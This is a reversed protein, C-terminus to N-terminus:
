PARSDLRDCFSRLVSGDPVVRACPEPHPARSAVVGLWAREAEVFSTGTAEQLGIGDRLDRVASTGYAGAVWRLFSGGQLLARIADPMDRERHPLETSWAGALPLLTGNQRLWAVWADSSQGLLPQARDIEEVVYVAFGGELFLRIGGMSLTGERLAVLMFPATTLDMGKGDYFLNLRAGDTFAPGAGNAILVPIRHDPEGGLFAEIAVYDAELRAVAQRVLADDASSSNRVALYASEVPVAGAGRASQALRLVAPLIEPWYARALAGWFGFLALLALATRVLGGRDVSDRVAMM